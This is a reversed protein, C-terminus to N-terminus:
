VLDRANRGLASGTSIQIRDGAALGDICALLFKLAITVSLPSFIRSSTTFAYAVTRL